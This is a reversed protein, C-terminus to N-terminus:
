FMLRYALALAQVKYVVICLKDTYSDSNRISIYVKRGLIQLNLKWELWGHGIFFYGYVQQFNFHHYKRKTRSIMTQKIIKMNRTFIESQM